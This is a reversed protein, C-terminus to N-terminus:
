LNMKMRVYFTALVKSQKLRFYLEGVKEGESVSFLLVSRLGKKVLPRLFELAKKPGFRSVGPMSSPIM